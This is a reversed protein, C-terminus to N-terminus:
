AREVENGIFRYRKESRERSAHFRTGDKEVHEKVMRAAETSVSTGDTTSGTAVTWTALLGKIMAETTQALHDRRITKVVGPEAGTMMESLDGSAARTVADWLPHNHWRFREADTTSPLTYRIDELARTHPHAQGGDTQLRLHPLHDGALQQDGGGMGVEGTGALGPPVAVPILIPEHSPLCLGHCKKPLLETGIHDGHRQMEILRNWMGMDPHCRRDLNLFLAPATGALVAGLRRRDHAPGQVMVLHDAGALVGEGFSRVAVGIGHCREAELPALTVTLGMVLRDPLEVGLQLAPDGSGLGLVLGGAIEAELGLLIGDAGIDQALTGFM